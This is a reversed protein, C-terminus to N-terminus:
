VTWPPANKSNPKNNSLSTEEIIITHKRRKTVDKKPKSADAVNTGNRGKINIIVNNIYDNTIFPTQVELLRDTLYLARGKVFPLKEAGSQDLVVHSATDTQLRFCLKADANQKIQRPLTDATPYQTAFVLRYGIGGGIRAIESLLRECTQLTAKRKKETIGSSSLEAGEDVIIFHRKHDGAEKIDEYGLELYKEQKTVLEDHIAELADLAEVPNKAVTNIQPLGNFRSFALGGKLDVLTFSVNEPQNTLLTTIINKLFVTKGYRTTGAIVMHPITDFDHAHNSTLSKGLPVCWGSVNNEYHVLEPLGHNYIKFRVMGDYDVVLTKKSPQRENLLKKVDDLWTKTIPLRVLRILTEKNLVMTSKVTLGDQFAQYKNLVDQFSLGLPLQYVYEVYDPHTTRRHIRLGKKLKGDKVYLGCSEAIRIIKDHDNQDTAIHQKYFPYIVAISMTGITLFSLLVM